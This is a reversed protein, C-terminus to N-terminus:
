NKNAYVGFISEIDEEDLEGKVVQQEIANSVYDATEEASKRFAEDMQAQTTAEDSGAGAAHTATTSAVIAVNALLNSLVNMNNVQLVTEPHGTFKQLCGTDADSGIAFAIRNGKVFWNNTKLTRIGRDVDDSPFGDTLLIMVARKFGACKGKQILKSRSLMENLEIFAAGMNTMTGLRFEPTVLAPDEAKAEWRPSDDFCLVSLKIDADDNETNLMGLQLKIEEVATKVQEIKAGSMSGSTDVVLFLPMLKKQVGDMGLNDDTKFGGAQSMMDSDYNEYM